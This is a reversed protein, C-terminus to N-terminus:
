ILKSKIFLYAGLQLFYFTSFLVGTLAAQLLQGGRALMFDPLLRALVASLTAAMLILGILRYPLKLAGLHRKLRSYLLTFELLTGILSALAIGLLGLKLEPNATGQGLETKELVTNFFGPSNLLYVFVAGLGGSTLVRFLSTRVTIGAEKLAYFASALLRSYCNFPLALGLISLVSAVLLTDEHKFSGGQLLGAILVPGLALLAVASPLVFVSMKILGSEVEKAIGAAVPELQEQSMKPLAAASVSMGFLGIPLLYIAQAYSLAALAGVPLFSALITDLYASIQIVGRALMVKLFNSFVQTVQESAQFFGIKFGELHRLVSPLQVAFQLLSGLFVAWACYYALEERNRSFGYVLLCAIITINWFVPAFYPLFFRHHSNLIGLCWASLVLIGMAPFLVRSLRVTLESVEPSFGPALVSVLQDAFIVGLAAAGVAMCCLMSFVSNALRNAELKDRKLLSAYVPIFSGSLVGEGLLNQLINPIRLAARFADAAASNGFYHAFVRERVLGLIRSFLIGLAVLAARPKPIRRLLQKM